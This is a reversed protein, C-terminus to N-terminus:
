PWLRTFPVETSESSPRNDGKQACALHRPSRSDRTISSWEGLVFGALSVLCPLSERWGTGWSGRGLTQLAAGGPGRGGLDQRHMVGEGRVRRQWGRGQGFAVPQWLCQWPPMWAARSRFLSAKSQCWWGVGSAMACAWNWPLARATALAPSGCPAASM